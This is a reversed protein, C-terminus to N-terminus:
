KELIKKKYIEWVDPNMAPNGVRLVTNNKDLLFCQYEIPSPFNNLKNINNDMDIVVPYDFNDRYFLYNVDSMRKPQFFFVFGIDLPSLDKAKDMLIEWEFPRLRCDSCGASDVYLLIKYEKEFLCLCSDSNTERGLSFCRISDPFVITKGLWESIIKESEKQYASKRNCALFLCLLISLFVVKRM